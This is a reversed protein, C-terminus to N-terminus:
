LYNRHRLNRGRQRRHRESKHKYHRAKPGAFNRTSEAPRRRPKHIKRAGSSITRSQATSWSPTRRFPRQENRTITPQGQHRDNFSMGYSKPPIIYNNHHYSSVENGTTLIENTARPAATSPTSDMNSGGVSNASNMRQRAERQMKKRHKRLCLKRRNQALTLCHQYMRSQRRIGDQRRRNKRRKKCTKNKRCQRRKCRGPRDRCRRPRGPRNRRSPRSTTTSYLVDVANPSPTTTRQGQHLRPRERGRLTYPIYPPSVSSVTPRQNGTGTNNFRGHISPTRTIEPQRDTPRSGRVRQRNSNPRGTPRITRPAQANRPVYGNYGNCHQLQGPNSQYFRDLIEETKQASIAIPLFSQNM